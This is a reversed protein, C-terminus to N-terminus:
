RKRKEFKVNGGFKSCAYEPRFIEWPNMSLWSDPYEVQYGDIIRQEFIGHRYRIGCGYAPYGLTSLSDLFMCSIKLGGNGRRILNKKLTMIALVLEELSKWRKKVM